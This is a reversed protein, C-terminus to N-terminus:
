LRPRPAAGFILDSPNTTTASGSNMAASSGVAASSVDLPNVKDLGSYEHIYLDAFSTIASSFTAQVKNTGGAVNKAYFVQSNSGSNNWRTAPAASAYVNGKSDSLTVTATTSWVVYAVILNGTTNANQFALSNVAGSKIEKGQGQVYGPTAARAGGAILLTAATALVLALVVVRVPASRAARRPAALTTSQLTRPV